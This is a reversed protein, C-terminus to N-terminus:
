VRTDLFAKLELLTKTLSSASVAINEHYFGILEEIVQLEAKARDNFGLVEVTAKLLDIKELIGSYVMYGLQFEAGNSLNSTDYM